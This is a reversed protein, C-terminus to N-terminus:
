KKRQIPKKPPVSKAPLIETEEIDVSNYRDTKNKLTLYYKRVDVCVIQVFGAVPVSIFMGIGGWIQSCALLAFLGVLPHIGVSDAQLKPSIVSGQIQQVIIIFALVLLFKVLGGDILAVVCPFVGGVISGIYPIFDFLFAIFAFLFANEIGLIMLGIWTVLAMGAALVTKMKLYNWVMIHSKDLVGIVMKKTHPNFLGTFGKIMKDGDFLFYVVFMVIFFIDVLVGPIVALKNFLGGAVSGLAKVLSQYNEQILVQINALLGGDIGFKQMVEDLSNIYDLFSKSYGPILNIFDNIQETLIPTFLSVILTIIILVVILTIPIALGRKIGTKDTIFKMTPFLLYAIIASIAFMYVVKSFVVIGVIVFLSTVFLITQKKTFM